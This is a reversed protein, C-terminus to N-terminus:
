FLESLFEKVKEADAPRRAALLKGIIEGKAYVEDIADNHGLNKLINLEASGGSANVADVMLASYMPPVLEDLEGHYAYVPTTRLNSTRWAMGGGAVPAIASFFNPYTIGMMWTGFGGMSSGTICIRDSKICFEEAVRDIIAKVDEVVNDWVFEAPCQPCLVVAEFFAGEDIAKPIGHRTLHDANLGREGAGHLYTLLPLDAYNDPYYVAFNMRCNSDAPYLKMNMKKEM